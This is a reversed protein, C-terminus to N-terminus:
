FNLEDGDRRKDRISKLQYAKMIDSRTLIGVLEGRDNVVMLRGIDARSMKKFADFLKDEPQVEILECSMIEKIQKLEQNEDPFEEIDELTVCGELEGVEDVVPYGSHKELLMKDLLEGVTMDKKVTIVNETMLDEVRFDAFADRVLNFKYEQSAGIYIFFAILVLIIQGNLLGLLGLMVAFGKGINAAIQTARLYSTKRALLSRLIRGGDSPFAPMLNFLALFINMFGLYFIILRLDASWFGTIPRIVFLLLIGLALSLLPGAFAMKTEAEPELSEDEIQAVGGLLMLTIDKIEMGQTRAVLSHSLEHLTVSVFLLVALIFGLLYPAFSLEVREIGALGAIEEINNGIAVAMFPLILLFSIHLKIPIGSIKLITLSSKFM